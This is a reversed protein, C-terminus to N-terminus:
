RGGPPALRARVAAVASDEDPFGPNGMLKSWLSVKHKTAVLQDGVLVDFQGRSGVTTEVDM